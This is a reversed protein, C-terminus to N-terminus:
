FYLVNESKDILEGDTGNDVEDKDEDEDEDEDEDIYDIVNGTCDCLLSLSYQCMVLVSTSSLSLAIATVLQSSCKVTDLLKDYEQSLILALSVCQM